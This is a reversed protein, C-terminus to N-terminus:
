FDASRFRNGLAVRALAFLRGWTPSITYRAYRESLDLWGQKSDAIFHGPSMFASTVISKEVDEYGFLNGFNGRGSVLERGEENGGWTLAPNIWVAPPVTNVGIAGYRLDTVAQEITAAHAKRTRDDVFISAALTGFLHDNCFEVAAPVFTDAAPAVDLAVEGLVQSFAENEVAWGRVGVDEILLVASNAAAGDRPAILEADPYAARFQAFTSETGPYYSTSAPTGDRLATQLADLFERRQPWHRSTVVTQLRGCVAGGNIKAMTAIQMAQHTIQASTWPRDGPVVIVPNNGGCESVLETDTASMIAKATSTGGTFYIKTLRPDLTLSRGESPDCFALAHVDVLPQLIKEWVADVAANIQHPRHVAVCNDYFLARITEFSSPYNGAGLVAIVGTPKDYPGLRRAEGKVRLVDTRDGNLLRDKGRPGIRIDRYGGAVPTDALPELTKGAALAEYLEISAAVNGAVPIVALQFSAGEQHANAPVGPAIGKVALDAEVLEQAHRDINAQVERLLRLREIPGTTSWRHPDLWDVAATAHM